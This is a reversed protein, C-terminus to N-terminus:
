PFAGRGINHIVPKEIPVILNDSIRGYRFIGIIGNHVPTRNVPMVSIFDAKATAPLIPQKHM